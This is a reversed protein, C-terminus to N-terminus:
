NRWDQPNGNHMHPPTSIDSLHPDTGLLREGMDIQGQSVLIKEPTCLDIFLPDSGHFRLIRDITIANRGRLIRHGLSCTRIRTTEQDVDQTPIALVIIPIHNHSYVLSTLGKILPLTSCRGMWRHHRSIAATGTSIEDHTPEPVVLLGIINSNAMGATFHFLERFNPHRSWHTTEQNFEHVQQYAYDMDRM